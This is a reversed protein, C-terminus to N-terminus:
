AYRAFKAFPTLVLKNSSMGLATTQTFACYGVTVEIEGFVPVVAPPVLKVMVPVLKVPAVATVMPPMAAVLTVTTFAVVIVAIVAAPPVAPVALTKTVVEPPILAAFVSNILVVGVGVGVGVGDIDATTGGCFM